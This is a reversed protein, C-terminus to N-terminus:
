GFRPSCVEVARLTEPETTEREDHGVDNAVFSDDQNSDSVSPSPRAVPLLSQTWLFSLRGEEKPNQFRGLTGFHPELIALDDQSPM